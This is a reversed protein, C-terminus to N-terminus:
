LIGEKVRYKRLLRKTAIRYVRYKQQIEVLRYRESNGMCKEILM